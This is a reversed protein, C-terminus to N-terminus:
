KGICFNSFINELLNENTFEGTIESLAQQSLRIKESILEINYDYSENIKYQIEKLNILVLELARLHRRRALFKGEINNNWQSINKLHQILINIGEGTKASLKIITQGNFTTMGITEDTTDVKNYIVTIPVSIPIKLNLDQWIKSIPHNDINNIDVIFLIHDAQQIAQLAKNIGILEIDDNIVKRLGATDIIKLTIGDVTIYEHLLDRTTGEIDTVIAIDRKALSNLLSSKGANPVGALVIQISERLLSGQKSEQFIRNIDSIILNLLNKIKKNSLFDIEEEPFDISAEIYTQLYILKEKVLKIEASFFGQICNMASRAAQESNANILDAIAEAQILDLKDNLFARESFEGPNAIRTNPTSSIIYQIMIDLVIPGGHGQLELVDEGTFSNPKPFWLAIGEDIPLNHKGYFKSYKAYRPKPIKGLINKAVINANNGSIRIIGVAGKGPPTIQSVITDNSIM